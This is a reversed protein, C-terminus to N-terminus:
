PNNELEVSPYTANKSPSQIVDLTITGSIEELMYWGTILNFVNVRSENVPEPSLLTSPNALLAEFVEYILLSRKFLICIDPKM